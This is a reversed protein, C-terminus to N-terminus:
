LHAILIKFSHKLIACQMRNNRLADANKAHVVLYARYMCYILWNPVFFIKLIIWVLTYWTCLVDHIGIELSLDYFLLSIPTYHSNTLEKSSIAM